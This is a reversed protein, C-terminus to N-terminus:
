PNQNTMAVLDHEMKYDYFTHSSFQLPHLGKKKFGFKQYFYIASVNQQWVNLEMKLKNRQRAEDCCYQLLLKGLGKGQETALLYLKKLLAIQQHHFEIKAYGVIQDNQKVVLYCIYQDNIETTLKELGFLTDLEAESFINKYSERFTQKCVNSLEQM